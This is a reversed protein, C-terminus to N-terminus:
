IVGGERLIALEPQSLGMEGAYIEQNHEGIFPARRWYQWSM